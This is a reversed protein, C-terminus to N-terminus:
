MLVYIDINVNSLYALIRKCQATHSSLCPHSSHCFQQHQFADSFERVAM